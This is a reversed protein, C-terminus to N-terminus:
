KAEKNQIPFKVLVPGEPSGKIGVITPLHEGNKPSLQIMGEGYYRWGSMEKPDAIFANAKKAIRKM